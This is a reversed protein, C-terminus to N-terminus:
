RSTSKPRIKSGSGLKLILKAAAGERRGPTLIEAAQLFGVRLENDLGTDSCISPLGYAPPDSAFGFSVSLIHSMLLKGADAFQNLRRRWAPVDKELEDKERIARGEVTETYRSQPVHIGEVEGLALGMLWSGTLGEAIHRRFSLSQETRLLYRLHKYLWNPPIQCALVCDM